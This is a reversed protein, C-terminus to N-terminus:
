NSKELVEFDVENESTGIITAVAADGTVNVSTRCMDLFRDVPFILAIWSSNLGVSELVLILMVIGASPVAPAGISALTSMLVITIQETLTLEAGFFQALFVASVAQFLSTGDMNITAGVPLVFNTMQKSVGLKEHVVEMTVPLTAASSSTSFAVSQALGVKQLFQKFGVKKTIASVLSPYFIFAMFGLGILVTASYWILGKFIQFMLAPDNGALSSIQGALLAFVFFPAGKMVISIMKLIVSNAGNIFDLVPKAQRDEILSLGIGFFIAFFIVQLMLKNDTLSKFFNDSFFMDVYPMLPGGKRYAEADKKKDAMKEDFGSSELQSDVTQSLSIKAEESIRNGPQITNVLLLGVTVAIVTTIVYAGMTKGGWRGLQSMDSLGSVGSIISLLVLPVALLKLLRIFITGFPSIWNITFESWGLYSSAIAWAAGLVLGIVVQWHFAIKKM